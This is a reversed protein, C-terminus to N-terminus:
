KRDKRNGWVKPDPGKVGEPLPGTGDYSDVAQPRDEDKGWVKPDPGKLDGPTVKAVVSDKIGAKSNATAM